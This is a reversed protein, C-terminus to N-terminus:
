EATIGGDVPLAAGTIFSADESARFLKATALGIARNGGSVLVVKDSFRMHRAEGHLTPRTTVERQNSRPVTLPAAACEFGRLITTLISQQLWKTDFFGTPSAPM